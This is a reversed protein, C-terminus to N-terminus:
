CSDSIIRLLVGNRRMLTLAALIILQLPFANAMAPRSYVERMTRMDLDEEAKKISLYGLPPLFQEGLFSPFTM